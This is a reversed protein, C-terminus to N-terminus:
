KMFAKQVLTVENENKLQGGFHSVSNGIKIRLIHLLISLTNFFYFSEQRSVIINVVAEMTVQSVPANAM